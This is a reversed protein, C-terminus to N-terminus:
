YAQSLRAAAVVACAAPALSSPRFMLKVGVTSSALGGIKGTVEDELTKFGFDALVEFSTFL